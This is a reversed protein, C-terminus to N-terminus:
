SSRMPASEFHGGVWTQRKVSSFGFRTSEAVANDLCRGPRSTSTVLGHRSDSCSALAVVALALPPLYSLHRM